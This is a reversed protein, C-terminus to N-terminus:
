KNIQIFIIQKSAMNTLPIINAFSKLSLIFIIYMPPLSNNYIIDIDIRLRLILNKVGLITYLDVRKQTFMM